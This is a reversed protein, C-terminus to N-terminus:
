PQIFFPFIWAMFPFLTQNSTNSNNNKRRKLNEDSSSQRSCMKGDIIKTIKGISKNDLMKTTIVISLSYLYQSM